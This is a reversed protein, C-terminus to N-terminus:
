RRRLASLGVMSLALLSAVGPEPTYLIADIGGSIPGTGTASLFHIDLQVVDSPVFGVDELSVVADGGIANPEGSQPNVDTLDLTHYGICAPPNLGGCVDVDQTWKEPVSYIRQLNNSDTLTLDVNVGGNIDILVISQLLVSSSFDLVISGADFWDKEDDPTDFVQGNPGLTTTPHDNNQLVLINGLEVFLDPDGPNVGITSDFAAAGMHSGPGDATTSVSVAGGFEFVTDGGIVCGGQGTCVAQGNVMPSGTGNVGDTEWDIYGASASTAFCLLVLAAIPWM